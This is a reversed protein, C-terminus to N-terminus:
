VSRARDILWALAAPEGVRAKTGGVKIILPAADEVRDWLWQAAAESSAADALVLSGVLRFGASDDLAAEASIPQFAMGQPMRMPARLLALVEADLPEMEIVM